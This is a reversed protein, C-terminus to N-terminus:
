QSKNSLHLLNLETVERSLCSIGIEHVPIYIKQRKLLTYGNKQKASINKPLNAVVQEIIKKM